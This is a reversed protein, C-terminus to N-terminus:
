RASAAERVPERRLVPQADGVALRRRPRGAILGVVLALAVALLVSGGTLAADVRDVLAAVGGTGPAVAASGVATLVALGLASGLQHFTNVLGM